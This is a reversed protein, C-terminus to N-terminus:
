NRGKYPIVEAEPEDTQRLRQRYPRSDFYRAQETSITDIDQVTDGDILLVFREFRRNFGPMSLPASLRAMSNIHEHAEQPGIGLATAKRAAKKALRLQRPKGSTSDETGFGHDAQERHRPLHVIKIDRPADFLLRATTSTTRDGLALGVGPLVEFARGAQVNFSQATGVRTLRVRSRARIEDLRLTASGVQVSDGIGVTLVLPM